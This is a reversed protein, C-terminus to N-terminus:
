MHIYKRIRPSMVDVRRADTENEATKRRIKIEYKSDNSYVYTRISSVTNLNSRLQWYIAIKQWVSTKKALAFMSMTFNASVDPNLSEYVIKLNALTNAHRMGADALAWDFYSTTNVYTTFSICNM